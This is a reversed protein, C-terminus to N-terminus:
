KLLLLKKTAIFNGAKLRYFYVGSHLGGGAYAANFETEYKGAPRYEDILTAIERGLIDYVNLTVKSGEALQWNIQTSPNFPNPYNQGLYFDAVELNKEDVSTVTNVITYSTILESFEDVLSLNVSDAGYVTVKGFANNFTTTTIGQGGKNWLELGLLDFLAATKSNSIDLGGALIEPLGSNTGDDMAATHADGSLVIVNQIKNSRIFNLVSDQDAPFGPWKEVLEQAAVIANTGPPAQPFDLLFDQISISLNIARRQATNFPVTSVIFKWDATSNKLERLFWDLQNEGTGPSENRGLITHNSEPKFEWKGTTTNKVLSQLNPSRQSRLDLVFFDSNGFKFKHYIGRSENQLNYGPFFEKYGNISNERAGPPNEIELMAYDNGFANPKTAIPYSSTLASANNNMFDHDDYVYDVPTIRFLQGMPYILDYRNFYIQRVTSYNKAFFNNDYPANDTSDPYGWDGIQLFFRPYYKIIEKYINGPPTPPELIGGNQQCSGFGFTFVEKTGEEPFTLFYREANDLIAENIIPRYFYKINAKLGSSNIIAIFNNGANAEARIGLIPNQFDPSESLEINVVGADSVRIFFRASNSTVGGVVISNL